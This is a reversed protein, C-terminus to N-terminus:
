YQKKWCYWSTNFRPHVEPMIGGTSFGKKGGSHRCVVLLETFLGKQQDVVKHSDGKIFEEVISHFWLIKRFFLSVGSPFLLVLISSVSTLPAKSGQPDHSM